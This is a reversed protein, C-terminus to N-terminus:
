SSRAPRLDRALYWSTAGGDALTARGYWGDSEHVWWDLSGPIWTGNIHIEVQRPPNIHRATGPPRPGHVTNAINLQDALDRAEEADLDVGSRWGNLGPDWVGHGHETKRVHFRM